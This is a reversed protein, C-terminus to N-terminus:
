STGRLSPGGGPPSPTAAATAPERDRLCAIGPLVRGELFELSAGGGTSLHTMRAALGLQDIAAISDGGGVVVTAGADAREALFRAMARTGDGFTPVEFVGLPGNWFVTRAEALAENFLASSAPGVDVVSWSNPIKTAPVIKHEAGRTVEKAVVVDTPLLFAIGREEAAALIRAADEVKDREALSKGVTNGRALIFTNAM